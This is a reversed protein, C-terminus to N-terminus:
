VSTVPRSATRIFDVGIDRGIQLGLRLERADAGIQQMKRGEKVLEAILLTSTTTGDGAFRNTAAVSKKILTCVADKLRDEQM